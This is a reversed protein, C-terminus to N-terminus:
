VPIQVPQKNRLLTLTVTEGVKAEAVLRQLHRYDEVPTKGFTIILDGQRLGAEAAPSEPYISAVVAGKAQRAGLTEALESTVAQVAVGLWGRVVRGQEVLQDVVRKAMNIPIAFGIGKGAAVIATNVGVVEEQLNVLPGGSNGPNISADTQIFNEYTSIGVDSRGTASIVGATVTQDLGFPNGIAIVWEGVQLSDSDGLRAVALETDPQFSIVALDTKSDMGVVQGRHERKSSLKVTIEDAGKIVHFNTLVLGRADIIVGSGLSPRRSEPRPTQRPGFFQEFFERFVPDESLPSQAVPPRARGVHVAGINVVVPRVKRAVEIFAAQLDKVPAPSRPAQAVPQPPSGTLLSHFWFGTAGAAVIFLPLLVLRLPLRRM